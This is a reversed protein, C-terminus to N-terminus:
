EASSQEARSLEPACSMHKKGGLKIEDLMPALWSALCTQSSAAPMSGLHNKTKKRGSNMGIVAVATFHFHSFSIYQFGKMDRMRPSCCTTPIYFKYGCFGRERGTERPEDIQMDRKGVCREWMSSIWM